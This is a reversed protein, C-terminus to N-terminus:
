VEIKSQLTHSGAQLKNALDLIENSPIKRIIQSTESDVVNIITQRTENAVQFNLQSKQVVMLLNLNELIKQQEQQSIIPAQFTKDEINTKELTKQAQIPIPNLSLPIPSSLIKIINSM